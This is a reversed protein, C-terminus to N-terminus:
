RGPQRLREALARERDADLTRGLQAYADALFAHAERSDPQVEAARQL